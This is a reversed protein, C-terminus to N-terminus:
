IKRGMFSELQTNKPCVSNLLFTCASPLLLVANGELDYAVNRMPTVFILSLPCIPQFINISIPKQKEFRFLTPFWELVFYKIIDM